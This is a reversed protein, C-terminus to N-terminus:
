SSVDRGALWTLLNRKGQNQPLVSAWNSMLFVSLSTPLNKIVNANSLPVSLAVSFTGCVTPGPSSVVTECVLGKLPTESKETPTAGREFSTRCWRVTVFCTFVSLWSLLSLPPKRQSHLCSGWTM